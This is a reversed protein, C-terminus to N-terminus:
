PREDNGSAAAHGPDAQAGYGSRGSGGREILVGLLLAGILLCGAWRRRHNGAMIPGQDNCYKATM